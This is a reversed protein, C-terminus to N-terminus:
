SGHGTGRATAQEARQGPQRHAPGTMRPLQLMVSTVPYGGYDFAVCHLAALRAIGTAAATM